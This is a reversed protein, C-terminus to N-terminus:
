CAFIQNETVAVSRLLLLIEGPDEDADEERQIPYQLHTVLGLNPSYYAEVLEPLM